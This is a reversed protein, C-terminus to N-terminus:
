MPFTSLMRAAANVDGNTARIASEMDTRSPFQAQGDTLMKLGTKAVTGVASDKGLIALIIAFVILPHNTVAEIIGDKTASVIDSAEVFLYFNVVLSAGFAMIGASRWFEWLANGKDYESTETSIDDGYPLRLFPRRNKQFFAMVNDGPTYKMIQPLIFLFTGPLTRVFAARANKQAKKLQKKDPKEEELVQWDRETLQLVVGSIARQPITLEVKGNVSKEDVKVEFTKTDDIPFYFSKTKGDELYKINIKTGVPLSIEIDTEDDFNKQNFVKLEPHPDSLYGKEKLELNIEKLIEKSPQLGGVANVEDEFKQANYSGTKKGNKLMLHMRNGTVVTADSNENYVFTGVPLSVTAHDGRLVGPTNDEVGTFLESRPLINPSALLTSLSVLQLKEISSIDLFIAFIFVFIAFFIIRKASVSLPKRARVVPDLHYGVNLNFSNLYNSYAKYRENGSDLIIQLQALDRFLRKAQDSSYLIKYEGNEDVEELTEVKADFDNTYEDIEKGLEVGAESIEQFSLRKLEEDTLTRQWGVVTQPRITAKERNLNIRYDRRARRRPSRGRGPSRGQQPGAFLAEAIEEQNEEDIDKLFAIAFDRFDDFKKTLKLFELGTAIKEDLYKKPNAKEALKEENLTEHFFQDFTELLTVESM